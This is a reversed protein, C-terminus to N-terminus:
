SLREKCYAAFRVQILDIWGDERSKVAKDAIQGVFDCTYIFKTQGTDVPDLAFKEYTIVPGGFDKTLNGRIQLSNPYDVGIVEGWVLGEGEGFDEYAKGGIKTQIIFRLTKPSTFFERPWWSNIQNFYYEWTHAQDLAILTSVKIQKM